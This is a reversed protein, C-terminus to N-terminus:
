VTSANMAVVDRPPMQDEQLGSKPEFPTISLNEWILGFTKNM